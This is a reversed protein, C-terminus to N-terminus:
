DAEQCEPCVDEWEGRCWRSKWGNANKYDVAEHFEDFLESAEEGCIDCYLGYFDNIKEIAM